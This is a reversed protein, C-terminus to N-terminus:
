ISIGFIKKSQWRINILSKTIMFTVSMLLGIQILNSYGEKLNTNVRNEPLEMDLLHWHMRDCAGWLKHWVLEHYKAVLEWDCNWKRSMRLIYENMAGVQNSLM